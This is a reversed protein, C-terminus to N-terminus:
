GGPVAAGTDPLPLFHSDLNRGNDHFAVGDQAVLASGGSGDDARPNM